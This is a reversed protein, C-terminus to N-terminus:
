TDISGISSSPGSAAGVLAAGFLADVPVYQSATDAGVYVGDDFLLSSTNVYQLLRTTSTPKVTTDIIRLSAQSGLPSLSWIVILLLGLFSLSRM